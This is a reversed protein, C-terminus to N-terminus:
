RGVVGLLYKEYDVSIREWTYGEAYRRAKRSMEDRLPKNRLLANLKGSLDKPDGKRFSVGFGGEVAFSLEAIDSVVVPRGCAGAEIVAIGWGEFRSPLVFVSAGGLAKTKEAEGLFGTFRVDKLGLKGAMEKLRTEDRGRGVILLPAPVTKMAELLTDLGKNKIHLRGIYIIYAGEINKDMAGACETLLGERIGAPIVVAGPANIKKKTGESLATVYRFLRPYLAEILYFPIGLLLWRRIIGLGERHNMHLIAPRKTLLRSFVPNWPAFDEIVVDFEDRRCTLFRAAQVAYSFTSLLYNRDSGLFKFSLNGESYDKSGPYRGSVVTIEHGRSALRKSLEYVRVAGGGGVWPNETHDYILHLMKM